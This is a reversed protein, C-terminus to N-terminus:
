GVLKWLESIIDKTADISKRTKPTDWMRRVDANDDVLIMLGSKKVAKQKPIGYSIAQYQTIYPMYNQLWEFKAKTVKQDYLNNSDKSLWTIVGIHYGKSILAMCVKELETMNVLPKAEIYPSEDFSRLKELWNPVNYLDAVTGDMDFYIVKNMLKLREKLIKIIGCLVSITM